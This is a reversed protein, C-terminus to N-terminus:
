SPTIDYKDKIKRYRDIRTKNDYSLLYTEYEGDSYSNKLAAKAECASIGKRQAFIECPYLGCDICSNLGKEIVCATVPCGADLLKADRKRSRCGDCYIDKVEVRFGYYKHWADSLEARKDDKGLNKAYAKCMDCKYGCMSLANKDPKKKIKIMRMIDGAYEDDTIDIFMWKGDHYTKSGEYYGNIYGSFEARRSEFIEREARGFIILVTLKDPKIYFTVLTKKSRQFKLEEKGDYLVDMNYNCDIFSAIDELAGFASEGLTEKFIDLKMLSERRM